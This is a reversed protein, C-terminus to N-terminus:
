GEHAEAKLLNAIDGLFPIGGYRGQTYNKALDHDNRVGKIEALAYLSAAGYRDKETFWIQDRRFIDADLLNTNHTNFVLQANYPNTEKNHFLQILQHTLNPHLKADLEDVFLTEGNALTNIIPGALAFYKRTGSSEEDDMTFRVLKAISKDADFKKHSTHVDSFLDEGAKIKEALFAKLEDPMEDPLDALTAKKLDLATIGLDAYQLLNLIKAQDVKNRLLNVSFDIYTEEKLGSLINFNNEFWFLITEAIPDNFSAAVSLLLANPRIRKRQVLDDVKFSADLEFDQEKRYFLEIEKKKETCYLWEETIKETTAEFGYRYLKDKFIFIVEFASPLKESVSNLRFPELGIKDSIQKDKSSSIAFNKMFQLADFLKTKGSANAGYIVASKLLKLGFKPMAIINNEAKEKYYNSAVLSFKAEQEFTKYNKVTFQILM